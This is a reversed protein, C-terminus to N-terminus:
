ASTTVNAFPVCFSTGSQTASPPQQGKLHEVCGGPVAAGSNHRHRPIRGDARGGGDGPREGQARLLGPPEAVLGAGQEAGSPAAGLRCAPSSQLTAERPRRFVFCIQVTAALPLHRHHRRYAASGHRPRLHRRSRAAGPPGGAETPPAAYLLGPM